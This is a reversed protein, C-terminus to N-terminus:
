VHYERKSCTMTIAIIQILIHSTEWLQAKQDLIHYRQEISICIRSNSHHLLVCQQSSGQGSRGQGQRLGVGAAVTHDAPGDGTSGDRRGRLEQAVQGLNDPSMYLVNSELTHYVATLCPQEPRIVVAPHLHLEHRGSPM